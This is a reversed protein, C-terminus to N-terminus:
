PKAPSIVQGLPPFSCQFCINRTTYLSTTTSHFCVYFNRLFGLHLMNPFNSSLKTQCLIINFQVALVFRLNGQIGPILYLITWVALQNQNSGNIRCRSTLTFGSGTHAQSISEVLQSVLNRYSETLWGQPWTKTQLAASSAAPIGLYNRHLVNVQMKSTIKMSNCCGVIQQCCNYIVVDLLAIRQINIYATYSPLPNQIQVVSREAIHDNTKTALSMTYWSLCAEINGYGRLHHGNKAQGAIQLIHLLTQSFDDYSVATIATSNSSLLQIYGTSQSEQKLISNLWIQYLGQLSSRGQNMAAWKSINSM